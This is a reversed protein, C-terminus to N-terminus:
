VPRFMTVLSNGFIQYRGPLPGGATSFHPSVLFRIKNKSNRVVVYDNDDIRASTLVRVIEGDLFWAAKPSGVYRKYFVISGFVFGLIFIGLGAFM